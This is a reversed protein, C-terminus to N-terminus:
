ASVIRTPLVNLTSSPGSPERALSVDGTIVRIRRREGITAAPAPVIFRAGSARLTLLGYEVDGRRAGDGFAAVSRTAPRRAARGHASPQARQRNPGSM